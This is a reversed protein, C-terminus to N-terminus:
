KRVYVVFSFSHPSQLSDTFNERSIEQWDALNIDPFFTDAEYSEHVQTIYLKRVLPFTKRYITGGGIIFVEKENKTARLAEEISPMIIINDQPLLSRSIVINRRNSLPKGISEFTKRGMIVTHGLTIHRFHKLDEPIHWLLRNDKGIANNKAVAVIISLNQKGTEVTQQQRNTNDNM